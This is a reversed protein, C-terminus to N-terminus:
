CLRSSASKVKEMKLGLRCVAQQILGSFFKWPSSRRNITRYQELSSTRNNSASISKTDDAEIVLTLSKNSKVNKDFGSSLSSSFGFLHMAAFLLLIIWQFANAANDVLSKSSGGLVITSSSMSSMGFPPLGAFSQLAGCVDDATASSHKLRCLKSLDVHGDSNEIHGVSSILDSPRVFQVNTSGYASSTARTPRRRSSDRHATGEEPQESSPSQLGIVSAERESSLSGRSRDPPLASGQQSSKLRAQEKQGSSLLSSPAKSAAASSGHQLTPLNILGNGSSTTSVSRQDSRELNITSDSSVHDAFVHSMEGLAVRSAAPWHQSSLSSSSSSSPLSRGSQVSTTPSVLPSQSPMPVSQPSLLVAGASAHRGSKTKASISSSSLSQGSSTRSMPSVLLSQPSLVVSNDTDQSFVPQNNFDQNLVAQREGDHGAFMDFSASSLSSSSSSQGSQCRSMPTMLLSQPSLSQPTPPVTGATDYTAMPWNNFDQTTTAHQKDIDLSVPSGALWSAADIEPSQLETNAALDPFLAFDTGLDFGLDAGSNDFSMGASMDFSSMPMSTDFGSPFAFFNDQTAFSFDQAVVVPATAFSTSPAAFNKNVPSQTAPSRKRAKVKRSGAQTPSSSRSEHDCKRRRRKCDACAGALRKAKYAKKEEPTMNRRTHIKAAPKSPLSWVDM